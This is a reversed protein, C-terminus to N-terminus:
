KQMDWNTWRYVNTMCLLLLIYKRCLLTYVSVVLLTQQKQQFVFWIRSTFSLNYCGWALLQKYGTELCYTRVTEIIGGGGKEKHCDFGKKTMLIYRFVVVMCTICTCYPPSFIVFLKLYITFFDYVPKHKYKKQIM